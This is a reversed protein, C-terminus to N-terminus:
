PNNEPTGTLREEILGFQLLHHYCHKFHNRHWEDMTLLGFIPHTFRAEPEERAARLFSRVAEGLAGRAGDLDDFRPPPLGGALVPNKFERPTPRQDHLFAKARRLVADPTSCEVHAAGTSLEFAWGLHEVMEQATFRGWRPPTDAKLVALAASLDRELFERRLEENNVDFPVTIM